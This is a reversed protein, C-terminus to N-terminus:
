EEEKVIQRKVFHIESEEAGRMQNIIDQQVSELIGLLEIANFGDNTRIMTNKGDKEELVITYVKKGM